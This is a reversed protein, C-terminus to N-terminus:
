DLDKRLAPEYGSSHSLTQRVTPQGDAILAVHDCDPCLVAEVSRGRGIRYVEAPGSCLPCLTMM